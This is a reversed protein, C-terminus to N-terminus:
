FCKKKITTTIWRSAANENALGKLGLLAEKLSADDLQGQGHDYGHLAEHFLLAANHAANSGIASPRFFVQLAPSLTSTWATVDRQAGFYDKVTASLGLHAQDLVVRGPAPLYIAGIVPATSRTGDYFSAGQELYGLFNSWTFGRPVLKDIVGEQCDANPELRKLTELAQRVRQEKDARLPVYQNGTVSAIVGRLNLMSMGNLTGMMSLGAMAAGVTFCLGTPDSKNAPDDAAYSYRHLTQPELDRGDYPDM